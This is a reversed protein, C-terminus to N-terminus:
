VYRLLVRQTMNHSCAQVFATHSSSTLLSLLWNESVCPVRLALADKEQVGSHCSPTSSSSFVAPVPCFLNPQGTDTGSPSRSEQAQPSLIFCLQTHADHWRAARGPGELLDVAKSSLTRAQPKRMTAMSM